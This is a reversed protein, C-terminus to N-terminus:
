LSTGYKGHIGSAAKDQNEYEKDIYALYEKIRMIRGDPFILVDDDGSMGEAEIRARDRDFNELIKNM